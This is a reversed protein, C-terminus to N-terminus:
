HPQSAAAATPTQMNESDDQYKQRKRSELDTNKENPELKEEVELGRKKGGAKGLTSATSSQNNKKPILRRYSQAKDREKRETTTGKTATTTDSLHEHSKHMTHPDNPKLNPINNTAVDIGIPVTFLQVGEVVNQRESAWKQNKGKEMIVDLHMSSSDTISPFSNGDTVSAANIGSVNVANVEKMGHNEFGDSM